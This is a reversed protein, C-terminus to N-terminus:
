RTLTPPGTQMAEDAAQRRAEDTAIDTGLPIPEDERLDLYTTLYFADRDGPPHVQFDPAGDARTRALFAPLDPRLVREIYGVRLVGRLLENEMNRTYDTWEGREVSRSAAFLGRAGYLSKEINGLRSSILDSVREGLRHFRLADTAVAQAYVLWGALATLAFGTVLVALPWGLRAGSVGSAESTEVKLPM